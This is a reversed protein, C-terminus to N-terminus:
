EIYRSNAVSKGRNYGNNYADEDNAVRMGTNVTKSNSTRVSYADNVPKPVVLMLATCQKELVAKVGNAFGALYTNKVGVTSLGANRRQMYYRTAFKNGINILFKFVDRAIDANKKYGYFVATHRGYWFSKCCFNQAVTDALRYKWKNGTGTYYEAEIIEESEDISEVDTLNVNYKAMLEQARLAAIMAENETAASNKATNLLKQIKEIIKENTNM